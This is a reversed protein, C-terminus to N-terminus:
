NGSWCAEYGYGWRWSLGSCPGGGFRVAYYLSGALLEYAEAVQLESVGYLVALEAQRAQGTEVVCLQLARDAALRAAYSDVAVQAAGAQHYARDHSVCCLEFPPQQQHDRAFQPWYAAVAQWTSSLGGSCGDTTFPNPAGATAVQQMLAQHGKLELGRGLHDWAQVPDQDPAQDLAEQAPAPSAWLALLVAIVSSPRLYSRASM